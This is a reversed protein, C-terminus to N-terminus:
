ILTHPNPLRRREGLWSADPTVSYTVLSDELLTGCASSSLVPMEDISGTVRATWLVSTPVLGLFSGSMQEGAPADDDCTWGTLPGRAPPIPAHEWVLDIEGAMDTAVRLSALGRPDYVFEGSALSGRQAECGGVSCRVVVFSGEGLGGDSGAGLFALIVYNLDGENDSATRLLAFSANESADIGGVVLSTRAPSAVSLFAVLASAWAAFRYVSSVSTTCRFRAM